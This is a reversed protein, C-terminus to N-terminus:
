LEKEENDIEATNEEVESNIYDSNNVDSIADNEVDTKIEETEEKIEVNITEEKVNTNNTNYNGNEMSETPMVLFGKSVLIVYDDKTAPYFGKSLLDKIYWKNYFFPFVFWCLGSTIFALIIMILFYKFDGRFLPVFFGFFFTTWSFGIKCEKILGVDNRLRVNM